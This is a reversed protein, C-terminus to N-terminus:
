RSKDPQLLKDIRLFKYGKTQLEDILTDLHLYFKDTREPATGIHSLLIFGNLGSKNKQEYTLISKYIVESSRYSPMDPTTYDAHSLTGHTFNILQLDLSRTWASITDNYWEYPPLFYHADAKNIGFAEMVNYNNELDNIFDQKSVLLSDRKKWDCYLLHQDSHPGLYHGNDQLSQIENKFEKNRYFNGTFFFSGLISHQNLIRIIDDAGDAFEDGTFVLAIEKKNTQGRTFAGQICEFKECEVKLTDRALDVTVWSGYSSNIFCIILSILIFKKM